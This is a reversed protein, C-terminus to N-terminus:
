LVVSFYSSMGSIWSTTWASAPGAAELLEADRCANFNNPPFHSNSFCWFFASHHNTSLSVLRVALSSTVSATSM